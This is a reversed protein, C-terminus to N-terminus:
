ILIQKKKYLITNLVNENGVSLNEKSEVCGTFVFSSADVAAMNHRMETGDCTLVTSPVYAEAIFFFLGSPCTLTANGGSLQLCKISM